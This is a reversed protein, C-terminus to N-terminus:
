TLQNKRSNGTAVIEFGVWESSIRVKNDSNSKQFQIGNKAQICTNYGLKGNKSNLWQNKGHFEIAQEKTWIKAL